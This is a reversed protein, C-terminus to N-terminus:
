EAMVGFERLLSPPEGTTYLRVWHRGAGLTRDTNAVLRGNVPALTM